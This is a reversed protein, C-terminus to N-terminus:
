RQKVKTIKQSWLTHENIPVSRVPGSRYWFCENIPITPIPGNLQQDPDYDYISPVPGNKVHNTTSSDLLPDVNWMLPVPVARVTQKNRVPGYWILITRVLGIHKFRSM